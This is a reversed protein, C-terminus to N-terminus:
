IFCINEQAETSVNPLYFVWTIKKLQQMITIYNKKKERTVDTFGLVLKKGKAVTKEPTTELHYKQAIVFPYKNKIFQAQEPKGKIHSILTKVSVSMYPLVAFLSIERCIEKRGSKTLM